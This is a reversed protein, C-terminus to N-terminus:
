EPQKRGDMFVPQGQASFAEFCEAPHNRFYDGAGRM